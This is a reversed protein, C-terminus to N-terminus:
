SQPAFLRVDVRRSKANTERNAKEGAARVVKGMGVAHIRRLDIGHRQVLYRVVSDVRERTLQLNYRDPGHPDAFGQLEVVANPDAKLARAVEEIENIGEDRLDAKNFDFYITKTELMSYKNRNTIRQSLQAETDRLAGAVSEAQRRADDAGQKADTALSNVEGVRSDLGQIRQSAGDIAQSNTATRDSTERLKTEQTDIRQTFKTDQEGVRESLKTETAGVHERVFKKTACASALLAISACVILVPLARKM